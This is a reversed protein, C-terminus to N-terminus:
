FALKSRSVSHCWCILCGALKLFAEHIDARYEWHTPLRKVQHLWTFTRAVLRRRGLGSGHNCDGVAVAEAALGNV